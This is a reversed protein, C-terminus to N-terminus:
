VPNLIIENAKMKYKVRETEIQFENYVDAIQEYLGKLMIKWNEAQFMQVINVSKLLPAIVKDCEYKLKFYIDSLFILYGVLFYDFRNDKSLALHINIAINVFLLSKDYNGFDDNILAINYALQALHQDDFLSYDKRIKMVENYYKNVQPLNGEQMYAQILNNYSIMIVQQNKDLHEQLIEISKEFYNKAEEIGNLSLYSLGINNYIIGLNPDKLDLYNEARVGLDLWREHLFKPTTQWRLTNLVANELLLLPQYINNRYPEKITQLISEGYRVFKFSKEPNTQANEDIRRFLWNLFMFSAIFGNLNNRTNYVIFEKVIRHMRIYDKNKEIWGKQFLSNIKNAFDVKNAAIYDKGCIEVLDMILIDDSPLLAFFELFTQEENTLNKFELKKQLFSYLQISKGEQEWLVDIELEMDDLKQEKLFQLLKNLDLDISNSITKSCLEIILPNYEIYKVFEEFVSEETSSYDSRYSHYIKKLNNIDLVPLLFLNTGSINQRSSIILSWNRLSILPSLEVDQGQYNFVVIVNNGDILSLRNCILEVKEKQPLDKPLQLHINEHLVVNHILSEYFNDGCEICIIHNFFVFERRLFHKIFFSKGTGYEGRILIAKNTKLQNIFDVFAEDRGLIEEKFIQPMLTLEKKFSKPVKNQELEVVREQINTIDQKLESFNSELVGLRLDFLELFEYKISHKLDDETRELLLDMTSYTLVRDEKNPYQARYYIESLLVSELISTTKSKFKPNSLMQKIQFKTKLISKNPDEDDFSWKINDIFDNIADSQIITLLKNAASNIKDKSDVHRSLNNGKRRNVEAKLINCLRYKVKNKLQTDKFDEDGIWANLLKENKSVSTNTVFYFEINKAIGNQVFLIFFNYLSKKIEDSNLNFNSSYSKVQTFILKGGVEKIDDDVEVYIPNDIGLIYNEIWKKLVILYQFLLGRNTSPADTDVAFYKLVQEMNNIEM